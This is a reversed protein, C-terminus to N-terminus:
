QLVQDAIRELVSVLATWQGHRDTGVVVLIDNGEMHAVRADAYVRAVELADEGDELPQVAAIFIRSRTDSQSDALADGFVVTAFDANFRHQSLPTNKVARELICTYLIFGTSTRSTSSSGPSTIRVLSPKRWDLSCM